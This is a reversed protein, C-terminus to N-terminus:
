YRRLREDEAPGARDALADRPEKRLVASVNADARPLLVLGFRDAGDHPRMTGARLEFRDAHRRRAVARRCEVAPDSTTAAPAAPTTSSGFFTRSVLALCQLDRDVQVGHRRGADLADLEISLPVSRSPTM